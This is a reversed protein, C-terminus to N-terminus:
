YFYSPAATDQGFVVYVEETVPGQPTAYTLSFHVPLIRYSTVASATKENIQGDIDLVPGFEPPM